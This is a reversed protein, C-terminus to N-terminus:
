IVKPSSAMNGRWPSKKPGPLLKEAWIKTQRELNVDVEEQTGFSVHTFGTLRNFCRWREGGEFRVYFCGVERVQM